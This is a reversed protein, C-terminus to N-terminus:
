AAGTQWQRPLHVLGQELDFDPTQMNFRAAPIQQDHFLIGQDCLLYIEIWYEGKLLALEPFSLNVSGNGNEDQQTTLGDIHSGASAVMRGDSAHITAAFSPPPNAAGQWSAEIQLRSLGTKGTPVRTQTSPQGDLTINVHKFQPRGPDPQPEPEPTPDSAPTHNDTNEAEAGYLFSEYKRVVDAPVGQAIVQGKHLWLAHNCIAEIQYLNHSCFLITKGSEKLQMIRDFSKKAFAGDGVSLAEDIVLIDPEVCVAVAFALRVFMGSSYTKVPQDIADGIESFQHIEDFRQELEERTLGLITGNLFVNERGTFEPNFGSGLELLAAVRGRITVEGSSPPLTGCIVQLLTSKGAGNRGVLGVVEGHGITLEVPTLADFQRSKVQTFPLSEFLRDAPKNYIRYTKAVHKLEIAPASHWSPTTHAQTDKKQESSM